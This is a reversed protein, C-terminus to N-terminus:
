SSRREKRSRATDLFHGLVEWYGGKDPGVRKILRDKKLKNLNFKIGDETIGVASALERRTMSPNQRILELIKQTTRQTTKQTAAKPTRKLAYRPDRYFIARFFNEAEFVPPKLGAERMLDKMKKIGSGM